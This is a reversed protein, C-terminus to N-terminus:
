EYRLADGPELAVVRRTPLYAAVFIVLALVLFVALTVLIVNAFINPIAAGLGNSVVIGLCVGVVAVLAYWLAQRLFMAVIQWQTSGMARRVGVEQTRRIVSRSILGFLGAAALIVTVLTVGTFPPLLATTSLNLVQLYDDLTQLNQLPQDRDVAFAAARLEARNDAAANPLKTLLVFESPVVQRLPRYVVGSYGSYPGRVASTVGVITLWPGNEAPNVQIRKGLVDQNRWYRAATNEDVIAVSMSDSTDTIDFARGARLEIGLLKFYNDSVVAFPLKLMGQDVGGEQSEIAAPATNPDTPVATAFAVDAGSIRSNISTTLDDWYRLRQEPEPYREALATPYTSLMIRDTEIGMPRSAEEKVSVVVNACVVMVLSAVLVQLGVLLSAGRTRGTGAVGKGSGGLALAADQNAIRWAPFLTCLLWVATAVATATLVDIWRISPYTLPRGTAEIQQRLDGLSQGWHVGLAALALALVLGAAIIFVSELLCQRLLRGRSSGLASRLALEHSRELMRAFFVVGINVCGLLLVAGAIALSVFIISVNDHSYIRYAPFLEIHRAADFLQPHSANVQQIAPTMETLAATLSQDEGLTMIPSVFVNSDGPGALQPLQLPRWLEFDQFALLGEPMVAIIQVPQGDIRTQKGVIAPDAAFLNQWTDFSLIVTPTAGIQSDTAEFMRGLLPRVQMAALLGPSISATRLSTSAQGESLVSARSAFAGLHQTARAHKLLEQYTYADVRARATATANDAIQISYWRDAGPFPLPKFVTNYGMVYTFMALGVSIAVVLTCLISYAPTKFLLRWAYRLDFWLNTFM